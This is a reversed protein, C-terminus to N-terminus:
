VTMVFQMRNGSIEVIFNTWWMNVTENFFDFTRVFGAKPLCKERALRRREASARRGPVVPFQQYLLKIMNLWPMCFYVFMVYLRNLSHLHFCKVLRFIPTTGRVRIGALPAQEAALSTGDGFLPLVQATETGLHWEPLASVSLRWPLWSCITSVIKNRRARRLIKVRPQMVGVQSRWFFPLVSPPAAWVQDCERGLKELPAQPAIIPPQYGRLLIPPITSTIWKLIHRHDCFKYLSIFKLPVNAEKKRTEYTPSLVITLVINSVM